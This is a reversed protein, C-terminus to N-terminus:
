GKGPNLRALGVRVRVTVVDSGLGGCRRSIQFVSLHVVSMKSLCHSVMSKVQYMLPVSSTLFRVRRVLIFVVDGILM